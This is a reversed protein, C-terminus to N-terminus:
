DAGVPGPSVKIDLFQGDDQIQLHELLASVLRLPPCVFEAWQQNLFFFIPGERSLRVRECGARRAGTQISQWVQQVRELPIPDAWLELWRQASVALQSVTKQCGVLSDDAPCWFILFEHEAPPKLTLFTVSHAGQMRKCFEKISVVLQCAHASKKSDLVDIRRAYTARLGQGDTANPSIDLPAGARLARLAAPAQSLDSAQLLYELHERSIEM